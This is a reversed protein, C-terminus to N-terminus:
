GEFDDNEDDDIDDREKFGRLINRYTNGHIKIRLSYYHKFNIHSSFVEVFREKSMKRKEKKSMNAYVDSNKYRIYADKLKIQEGTDRIDKGDKDKTWAIEYISNFWSTFEDKSNM